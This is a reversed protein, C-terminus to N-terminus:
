SDGERLGRGARFFGVGSGYIKISYSAISLCTCIMAIFGVPLHMARVVKLLFSWDVIDFAKM